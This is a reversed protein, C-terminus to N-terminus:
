SYDLIFRTPTKQCTIYRSYTYVRTWVIWVCHYGSKVRIWSHPIIQIYYVEYLDERNKFQIKELPQNWLNRFQIFVTLLNQTHWLVLPTPPPELIMFTSDKNNSQQSCHEFVMLNSWMSNSLYKFSFHLLVLISTLHGFYGCM